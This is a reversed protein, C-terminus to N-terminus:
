EIDPASVLAYVDNFLNGIADGDVDFGTALDQELMALVDLREQSYKRSCMTAMDLHIAYKEKKLQFDAMNAVAEQMRAIDTGIPAKNAEEFASFDAALKRSCDALHMHKLSLFISDEEDLYIVKEEGDSGKHMYKKGNEIKLTDNILAQYHFDHLFPTLQDYSRDLILLTGQSFNDPKTIETFKKFNNQVAESLALIIGDQPSKGCAYRIVPQVKCSICLSCISKAIQEVLENSKGKSPYVQGIDIPHSHIFLRPEVVIFDLYVERFTRIFARAKSSSIKGFLEDSVHDTFFLHAKAYIPKKEWDTLFLSISTDTPTLFYLADMNEFPYRKKELCEIVLM